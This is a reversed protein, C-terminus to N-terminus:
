GYNHKIEYIFIHKRWGYYPNSRFDDGLIKSILLYYNNSKSMFISQATIQKGSSRQTEM